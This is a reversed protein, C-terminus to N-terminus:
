AGARLPARRGAAAGRLRVVEAMEKQAALPEVVTLEDVLGPFAEECTKVMLQLGRRAAIREGDRGPLAMALRGLKLGRLAELTRHVASVFVEETFDARAGLGVALAVKWPLRRGSSLLTREGLRGNVHGAAILASLRGCLRWDVLGAAGRLPRVDSWLGFALMDGAAAAQDWRALDVPIFSIRVASV